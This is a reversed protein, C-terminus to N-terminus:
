GRGKNKELEYIPILESDFGSKDIKKPMKAM